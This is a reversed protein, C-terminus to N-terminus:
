NSGTQQIVHTLEHALLSKGSNSSPDYKGSNFYIDKGHTFAQAQVRQNMDTATSDTHIRVGSFDAGFRPEMFARTEDPLSSGGGKSSSLSQELGAMSDTQSGKAQIMEEEEEPMEQRQIEPQMQLQEEEEPMEQRQIEPQMQLEERQEEQPMLASRQVLPTISSALPKMQLEKQEQGEMSRQVPEEQQKEPMSMVQAAVQDAEQEYQDGPQGITLKTQIPASLMGVRSFHHGYRTARDLRAQLPLASEVPTISESDPTFSRQPVSTQLGAIDTSLHPKHTHQRYSM